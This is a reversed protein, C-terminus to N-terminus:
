RESRVRGPWWAGDGVLYTIAPVLMARVVFTDLLVGLAVTGGIQVLADLPLLTLTAFTGALIVGAGTVVKGTTELARLVGERTGLLAAEEKARSMLFINYDVGLAILFIFALLTLNFTLGSEGFVKTFLVTAIGLTAGFSAIVTVMLYLPAVFARLLAILILFIVLLTLPVILKTDRRNAAEVDINEATIGGVLAGPTRRNLEARIDDVTTAAATSYPDSTLIALVLALDGNGSPKAPLAVQVGSTHSLRRLVTDAQDAAVIVPVPSSIGAPFERDLVAEGRSSDTPRTVGRGFGITDTHVLNGLAAVALGAFIAIVLVRARRRVLGSLRQWVSPKSGAEPAPAPAHPRRPWFARTGLMSLLAPLLTFSALLMVAIGIALVPGLWHTSELDALLLVLLAAIVTAASAAVAPASARMASRLASGPESGTALGDRYRQVLLLSYDTGAGFMLVLLLMTGETNVEIAGSRILLYVIGASVAYAAGVVLLPLLALIPARYVALLLVLVLGLTAFLLTRGAEDAITELDAAVGAPGTVHAVLGNPLDNRLMGRIDHVDDAIADRIDANIALVAIASTGDKSVLGLGGLFDKGGSAAVTSFVPSAGQLNSTGVKQTFAIIAKRDARTLGTPRNFVVLAPVEDGSGFDVKLEDIARTSEAGGPLFSSQGAATVEGLHSRGVFGAIALAVWACM